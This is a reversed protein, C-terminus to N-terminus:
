QPQDHCYSCDLSAKKARHCEMCGGMSLDTERYLRDRQAVDGHCDKCTNGKDLHTRHSFFVFDPIQYVRMWPIRSGEKAAAALRRIAPSDVYLSGHCDMCFSPGVITMTEGPNPNPHCDKCAMNMDGAHAKHSFPIPQVPADEPNQRTSQAGASWFAAAACVAMMGARLRTM